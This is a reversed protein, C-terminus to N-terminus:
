KLQTAIRELKETWKFEENLKTLFGYEYYQELFNPDYRITKLLDNIGTEIEGNVQNWPTLKDAPPLSDALLRSHVTQVIGALEGAVSHLHRRIMKEELTIRKAELASLAEEIANLITSSKRLEDLWQMASIQEAVSLVEKLLLRGSGQHVM